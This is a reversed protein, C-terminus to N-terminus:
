FTFCIPYSCRGYRNLCDLTGLNWVCIRSHGRQSRTDSRSDRDFSGDDPISFVADLDDDSFRESLKKVTCKCYNKAKEAGLYQKSNQYCGIYMQQENQQNFAYSELSILYLLAFFVVSKFGINKYKIKM